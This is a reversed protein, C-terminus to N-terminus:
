VSHFERNFVHTWFKLLEYPLLIGFHGNKDIHNLFEESSGIPYKKPKTIM